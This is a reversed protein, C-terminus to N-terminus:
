TLSLFVFITHNWKYTCGLFFVFTCIYCFLFMIISFLCALPDPTSPLYTLSSLIYLSVTAFYFLWPDSIYLIPFIALLYTIDKYAGEDIVVKDQGLSKHLEIFSHAMDHLVVWSLHSMTFFKSLIHDVPSPFSLGNWYKQRFFGMSLIFLGFSIVSILFLHCSYVSSSYLFPRLSRSLWSPVTVWRSGSMRSHSALHAKPLM